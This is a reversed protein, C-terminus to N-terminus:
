QPNQAWRSLIEIQWDDLPEAPPKPMRGLRVDSVGATALIDVVGAASAAAFDAYDFNPADSKLPQSPDMAYHCHICRARVIPWVDHEWTPHAPVDPGCSALLAAGVLLLLAHWRGPAAPANM